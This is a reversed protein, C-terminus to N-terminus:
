SPWATGGLAADIRRNVAEDEGDLCKAYIKLLVDVSHGAREAVKPAPVGTNLWLSVAAHRLDYPRVALPSDAQPPTLALTRAEEWVRTYTSGAVPNGRKSRFLRGDAAVGFRVLHRFLYGVLPPPIPVPRTEDDARHKLGRDDHVLGSDTWRKGAQPRNKELTLRGWRFEVNVHDCTPSAARNSTLDAGCDQCTAPLLCDRERLGLAEGPRLAALALCAFFAVLPEGRGVKGRKGTYSVATLLELVQRPNAVVRRDVITSVKKRRAPVRIKDIPNFDLAELDVAYQLVNYFVSRRRRTTTAAAATGDLKRSLADLGARVVVPDVLDTLPLSAKRLWAIVPRVESPPDTDRGAPPLVHVALASRLAEPAPRGPIDRSLVPTVISLAEVISRRSMAAAGPWKMSVYSETFALWTVADKAQEMSEPLGSDLDFGEGRNAAQMLDSRFNDALARGGFTKSKERGSVSWRVTYSKRGRKGTGITNVKISWVRVM